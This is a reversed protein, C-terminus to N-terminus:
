KTLAEFKANAIPYQRWDRYDFHWWEMPYVSFGETELTHRLLDRHWRELSTGGLYDPYARDTFEDHDTLMDVPAGTKLDYLTLDVACGRNHRSGQAPDAVFGKYKAPTADFFMKTVHWPRYADYILIGYGREALKKHARALAEAAPRQLFARASTYFPVGVFNNKTAYRIDLKITPDLAAVDVLESKREFVNKEQPPAAKLAARRLDEVPRQPTIRFSEGAKLAPRRKFLVSAADVETAVGDPGRKFIVRDGHYLGYDPFKFTNEDVETLPYLFVWEILAHLQGEKELIFLTIYDPGYEGLLGEWKKPCPPPREDPLRRYVDKNITLTDDKVAIKTGFSGPDDTILEDKLRRLELKLGSRAPFIWLKGDRQYLDIIKDKTEESQYRGALKRAQEVPVPTTEDIKPLPKGARVALLMRLAADAIRGTIANTVDKSSCVIVGLKDDPLAALTTAFGYVAGGHGIRRRGEFESVFFGIGFGSKEGKKPYAVTWMQELTKQKLLRPKGEEDGQAFLFKLLKAMDHPTSYLSGAPTMGLDWTPAPFERGHYTWMIAKALRKRLEPSPDFSSSTMGLPDLLKEQILRAFAKKQTRELVYGAATLAANSYSTTSEPTYVLETKNLSKVTAEVSPETDDFYNGVPSERVLGSRHALIQRLTIDKGSKNIPRLEPLYTQIPADLDILGMEVFMMILLATIPKSISGVRFLTDASAHMMHGPDQWGYGKAWVTTQDDVVALSLAPLKKDAVEKALWQDLAAVADAYRAAPRDGARAVILFLPAVCVTLTVWVRM